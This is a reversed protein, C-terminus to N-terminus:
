QAQGAKLRALRAEVERDDDEAALQAFQEDISDAAVEEMGQALAEEHRVRDEFRRLESAPDMASINRASQQVKIQARAIRSRNTLEDRKRLLEERKTRLQALGSTLKDTLDRQQGVQEDLTRAQDEYGIQRRLAVRALNDFRDAESDQGSSRLEDAKRSAARAKDAWEQATDLSERQDHELLRLNGVTQAVAAEAERVNNSYDRVLQELMQEPDEASDLLANVNARVLQGIRGLISQAMM